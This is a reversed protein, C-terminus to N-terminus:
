QRNARKKANRKEVWDSLAILAVIAPLFVLWLWGIAKAITVVVAVVVALALVALCGPGGGRTSGSAWFPGVRMGLRAM